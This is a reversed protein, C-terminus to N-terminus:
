HSKTCEFTKCGGDSDLELINEDGLFSLGYVNFDSGM